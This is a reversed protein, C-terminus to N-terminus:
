GTKDAAERAGLVRIAPVTGAQVGGSKGLLTETSDSSTREPADRERTEPAAISPRVVTSICAWRQKFPSVPPFDIGV